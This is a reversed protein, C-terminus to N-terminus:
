WVVTLRNDSGHAVHTGFPSWERELMAALWAADERLARNLRFKALQFPVLDLSVLTGGPIALRPLYM